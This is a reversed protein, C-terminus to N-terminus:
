VWDNGATGSWWGNAEIGGLNAQKSGVGNYRKREGWKGVLRSPYISGRGGVVGCLVYM